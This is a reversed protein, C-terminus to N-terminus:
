TTTTLSIGLTLDPTYHGLDSTYHGLGRTYHGLTLYSNAENQHVDIMHIVHVDWLYWMYM